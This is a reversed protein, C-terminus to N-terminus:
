SPLLNIIDIFKPIKEWIGTEWLTLRVLSFLGLFITAWGVAIKLWQGEAKKTVLAALPASLVAGVILYPTISLYDWSVPIGSRYSKGLNTLIYTLVGVFCVLTESLSTSAIANRGERGSLIQGSVTIPGYGGGSLGKNFGALAGLSIIRKYAFKLKKNRLTLIVIGMALVMVGIYIKVGLNFADSYDFVVNIVAAFISSVIGFSALIFVVKTDTTLNKIRELLNGDKIKIEVLEEDEGVKIDDEIVIEGVFDDNMDSYDDNPIGISSGALLANSPLSYVKVKRKRRKKQFTKKRGLKFNRFAGHFLVSVLGAFLESMLVAPVIHAVDYGFILLVPTLTTGFGMGLSADMFEFIFAIAVLILLIPTFDAIFSM